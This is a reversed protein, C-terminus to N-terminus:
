TQNGETLKPTLGLIQNLHDMLRRGDAAEPNPPLQMLLGLGESAEHYDKKSLPSVLACNILPNASVLRKAFSLGDMDGLNEDVVVLDVPKSSIADLAQGGSDAWSIVAGKSEMADPLNAFRTRDTTALLTQTM